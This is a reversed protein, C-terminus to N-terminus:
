SPDRSDILLARIIESPLDLKHNLPFQLALYIELQLHPYKGVKVEQEEKRM